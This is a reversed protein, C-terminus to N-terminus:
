VNDFADKLDHKLQAFTELCQVKDMHQALNLASDLKCGCFLCTCTFTKGNQKIQTTHNITTLHRKLDRWDKFVANECIDCRFLVSIQYMEAISASPPTLLNIYEEVM